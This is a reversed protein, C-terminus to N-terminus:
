RLRWYWAFRTGNYIIADPAEVINWAFTVYGSACEGKGLRAEYPFQPAVGPVATQVTGNVPFTTLQWNAAAVRVRDSAVGAADSSVCVQVKYALIGASPATPGPELLTIRLPEAPDDSALVPLKASTSAAPAPSRTTVATPSESSVQYHSPGNVTSADSPGSVATATVSATTSPSQGGGTGAVVVAVVLGVVALVALPGLVRNPSRVPPREDDDWADLTEIDEPSENRTM